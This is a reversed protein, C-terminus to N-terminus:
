TITSLRHTENQIYEDRIKASEEKIGLASQHIEQPSIKRITFLKNIVFNRSIPNIYNDNNATSYASDDYGFVSINESYYNSIYGEKTDLKITVTNKEVLSATEVSNWLSTFQNPFNYDVSIKYGTEYGLCLPHISKLLSFPIYPSLANGTFLFYSEANDINSFSLSKM